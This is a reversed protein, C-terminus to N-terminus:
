AREDTAGRPDRAELRIVTDEQGSAPRVTVLSHGPLESSNRISAIEYSPITIVGGLVVSQGLVDYTMEPAAWALQGGEKLRALGEEDVQIEMEGVRVEWEGLRLGEAIQRIQEFTQQDMTDPMSFERGTREEILILDELLALKAQSEASFSERAAPGLEIAPRRGDHDSVVLIGGEGLARIIQLASAQDRLHPGKLEHSLRFNM